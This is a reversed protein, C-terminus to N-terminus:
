KLTQALIGQGYSEFHEIVAAKVEAHVLSYVQSCLQRAPREWAQTCESIM